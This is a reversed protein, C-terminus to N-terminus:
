QADKLAWYGKTGKLADNDQALDWPTIGHQSKAKADAGAKLLVQISEPTGYEAADHLPTLGDENRAMLDAGAKLLAQISEPIGFAAAFHLPTFGDKDRAMVDAGAKLLAQISEPTANEAALHLPTYGAESRAMVDAGAKLLVQINEPTVSGINSRFVYSAAWHLPTQGFNDVSNSDLGANLLSSISEEIMNDPRPKIMNHAAMHLPGRGDWRRISKLADVNKGKLFSQINEPEAHLSFYLLKKETKSEYRDAIFCICALAIIPLYFEKKLLLTKLELLEEGINLSYKKGSLLTGIITNRCTFHYLIVCIITSGTLCIWFGLMASSLHDRLYYAISLQIPFHILYVFYSADAAYRGLATQRSFFRKFLAVM